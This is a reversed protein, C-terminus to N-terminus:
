FGVFFLYVRDGQITGDSAVVNDTGSISRLTVTDNLLFDGSKALVNLNRATAGSFNLSETGSYTNSGLTLTDAELNIKKAGESLAKSVLMDSAFVTVGVTAGSYNSQTGSGALSTDYVIAGAEATNGAGSASMDTEIWKFKSLDVQTTDTFALTTKGAGFSLIGAKDAYTKETGQADEYKTQTTSATLFENLKSSSIKLVSETEIAQDSDNLIESGLGITIVGNYLQNNKAQDSTVLDAAGATLNVNDNIVVTGAALLNGEVILNGGNFTTTGNIFSFAHNNDTGGTSKMVRFEFPKIILQANNAVHFSTDTFKNTHTWIQAGAGSVEVFSKDATLSDGWVQSGQTNYSNADSGSRGILNLTAGDSFTINSGAKNNSAVTGDTNLTAESRWGLTARGGNARNADASGLNIVADSGTVTITKGRLIANQGKDGSVHQLIDVTSDKVSITNAYVDVGAVANGSGATVTVKANNQITLTGLGKIQLKEDANEAGFTFSDKDGSHGNITFDNKGGNMVVTEGATSGSATLTFASNEGLNFVVDKNLTDGSKVEIAATDPTSATGNITFVDGSAQNITDLSNYATAQAQSGKVYARKFIARYQALLFNLANNSLKM